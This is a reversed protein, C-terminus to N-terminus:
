QWCAMAAEKWMRKLDNMIVKDNSAAYDAYLLMAVM